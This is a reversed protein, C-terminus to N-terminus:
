KTTIVTYKKRLKASNNVVEAKDYLKSIQDAVVIAYISYFLTIRRYQSMIDTTETRPVIKNRPLLTLYKYKTCFM